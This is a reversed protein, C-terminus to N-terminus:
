NGGISCQNAEVIISNGIGGTFEIEFDLWAGPYNKLIFVHWYKLVSPTTPFTFSDQQSFTTGDLSLLLAVSAPQTLFPYPGITCICQVASQYPVLEAGIFIPNFAFAGSVLRAGSALSQSSLVVNASAVPYDGNPTSLSAGGETARVFWELRSCDPSV